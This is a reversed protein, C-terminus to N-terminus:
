IYTSRFKAPKDSIFYKWILKLEPPVPVNDAGYACLGETYM